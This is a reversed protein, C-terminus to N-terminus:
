WINNCFSELGDCDCADALAMARAFQPCASAISLWYKDADDHNNDADPICQKSLAFATRVFCRLDLAQLPVHKRCRDIKEGYLPTGAYACKLNETVASSWDILLIELNNQNRSLFINEPKVDRHIIKLEEHVTQLM